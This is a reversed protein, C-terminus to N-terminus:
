PHPEVIKGTRGPERGPALHFPPVPSEARSRLAIGGAGGLCGSGAVDAPQVKKGQRRSRRGDIVEEAPQARLGAIGTGKTVFQGARSHTGPAVSTGRTGRNSAM